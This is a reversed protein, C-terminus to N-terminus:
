NYAIVKIYFIEWSAVHYNLQGIPVPVTYYGTTGTMLDNLVWERQFHMLNVAREIKEAHSLMAEESSGPVSAEEPGFLKDGWKSGSFENLFTRAGDELMDFGKDIYDLVGEVVDFPLTVLDGLAKLLNKGESFLYQSDESVDSQNTDSFFSALTQNPDLGSQPTSDVGFKRFLDITNDKFGILGQMPANFVNKVGATLHAGAGSFDGQTVSEFANGVYDLTLFADGLGASLDVISNDLYDGLEGPVIFNITGGVFEGTGSIANHSLNGIGSTIYNVGAGIGQFAKAGFNYVGSGISSGIDVVTNFGGKIGNIIGDLINSPVPMSLRAYDSSKTRRSGGRLMNIMKTSLSTGVKMRVTFSHGVANIDDGDGFESGPNNIESKGSPYQLNYSPYKVDNIIFMKEVAKSTWGRAYPQPGLSEIKGNPLAYLGHNLVPTYEDEPSHVLVRGKPGGLHLDCNRTFAVMLFNKATKPISPIGQANKSKESFNINSLFPDWRGNWRSDSSWVPVDLANQFGDVSGPNIGLDGKIYPVVTVPKDLFNWEWDTSGPLHINQHDILDAFSSKYTGKQAENDSNKHVLFLDESPSFDGSSQEPLKHIQVTEVPM